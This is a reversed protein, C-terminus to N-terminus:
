DLAADRLRVVITDFDPDSKDGTEVIGRPQPYVDPPAVEGASRVQVRLSEFSDRYPGKEWYPAFGFGRGTGALRKLHHWEQEAVHKNASPLTFYLYGRQPPLYDGSSLPVPVVFVGHVLIREPSEDNPQLEVTDVIAYIGISGRKALVVTSSLALIACVTLVRNVPKM